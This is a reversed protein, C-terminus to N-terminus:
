TFVKSNFCMTRVNTVELGDPNEEFGQITFIFCRGNNKATTVIRRLLLRIMAHGARSQRSAEIEDRVFSGALRGKTALLVQAENRTPINSGASASLTVKYM